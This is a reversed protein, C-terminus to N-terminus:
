RWDDPPMRKPNAKLGRRILSGYRQEFGAIQKKSLNESKEKRKELEQKIEGQLKSVESSVAKRCVGIGASPTRQM